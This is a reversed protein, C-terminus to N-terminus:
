IEAQSADNAALLRAIHRGHAPNLDFSPSAVYFFQIGYPEALGLPDGQERPKRTLRSTTYAIITDIVGNRADTLLRQYDPRTQRSRTSASIDNDKYIKYVVRELRDSLSLCDEQQRGVGLEQGERDDSIRLYIGSRHESQDMTIRRETRIIISVYHM